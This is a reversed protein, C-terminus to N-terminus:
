DAALGEAFGVGYSVYQAALLFPVLLALPTRRARYVALTAYLAVPLYCLLMAAVYRTGRTADSLAALGGALLGLTPGVSYWRLLRGHRRQLRAMAAGYSRSKSCLAGATAPLHHSVAVAPDYVFEYGARHLRYHFEADEGVNVDPDYRFAAFVERPYLVNCAAVSPVFRVDDIALSQASGGSGVLTNQMSAIVKALPPDADFPVNPGGVGALKRDDAHRAYRELLSGLWDPPVACDSDTFAVFEGDAREVGANRCAGIGAGPLEVFAADSEAVVDATADTSGGDVVLVEYREAPYRQAALSALTEGVTAASDYTVVVVTVVPDSM